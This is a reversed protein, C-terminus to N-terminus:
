NEQLVVLSRIDEDKIKEGKKVAIGCDNSFGKEKLVVEVSEFDPLKIHMSFFDPHIPVERGVRSVLTFLRVYSPRGFDFIECLASRITRGTYIVDDILFVPVDDIAFDIETGRVIPYPNRSIDDRWFTIDLAGLMVKKDQSLLSGIRKALFFGGSKIGVIAVVQEESERIISSCSKIFKEILDNKFLLRM